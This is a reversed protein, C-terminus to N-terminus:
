NETEKKWMLIEGDYGCNIEISKLNVFNGFVGKAQAVLNDLTPMPGADHFFRKNEPYVYVDKWKGEVLQSIKYTRCLGRDRLILAYDEAEWLTKFSGHTAIGSPSTDLLTFVGIEENEENGQDEKHEQNEQNSM